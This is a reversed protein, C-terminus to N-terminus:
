KGGTRETKSSYRSDRRCARSKRLGNGSRRKSGHGRRSAQDRHEPPFAMLIQLGDKKVIRVRTWAAREAAAIFKAETGAVM